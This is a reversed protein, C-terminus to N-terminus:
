RLDKRFVNAQFAVHMGVREYLRTAGTESEADVGLGVRTEGRRAFEAFVTRLLLEGLGRRRWPRRVGLMSIWGMEFRRRVCRVIAAVEEGDLVLWWLTQDSEPSELQKRRFEDFPEPDHDWHDAFAEEQAAHFREADGPRFTRVVLGQPPAPAPTGELEIVMRFFARVLRWGEREFLENAARDAALTGSVAYEGLGRALEEGNRVLWTGLGRGRSRPHVYGDLHVREPTAPWLEYYAVPTEDELVLTARGRDGLDRWSSRVDDEAVQEGTGFAGDYANMLDAVLQAEEPQAAREAFGEPLSSM